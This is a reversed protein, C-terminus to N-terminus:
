LKGHRMEIGFREFHLEFSLIKILTGINMAVNM